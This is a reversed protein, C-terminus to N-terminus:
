GGGAARSRGRRSMGGLEMEREVPARGLRLLYPSPRSIALRPGARAGAGAHGGRGGGGRAGAGRGGRGPLRLLRRQHRPVDGRAHAAGPPLLLPLSSPPAPPLSLNQLSCSPHSAPVVAREHKSASQGPPGGRACAQGAAGHLWVRWAGPGASRGQQADRGRSGGLGWCWWRVSCVCPVCVPVHASVQRPAEKEFLEKVGPLQKAAGFYRYGAGRGTAEALAKGESDTVKPGTRAYDPGGLEM